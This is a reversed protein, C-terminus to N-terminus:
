SNYENMNISESRMVYFVYIFFDLFKNFMEKLITDYDARGKVEVM